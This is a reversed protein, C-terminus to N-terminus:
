ADPRNRQFVVAALDFVGDQALIGGVECFNAIDTQDSAPKPGVVLLHPPGVNEDHKAMVGRCVEKLPLEPDALFDLAFAVNKGDDANPFNGAPKRPRGCCSSLEAKKGSLVKRLIRGSTWSKQINTLYSSALFLGRTISSDALQQAAAALYSHLLVVVEGDEAGVRKVRSQLESVLPSKRKM